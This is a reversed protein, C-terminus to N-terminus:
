QLAALGPQPAFVVCRDKGADKAEYRAVDADRLLEDATNRLGVAVGISAPCRVPEQDPTGLHYPAALGARIREAVLEPGAQLTVGEVLVVFEDGGLRGVSDSARLMATLRDAVAQLLQDGAAHGLADNVNKFGDLDLFLLGVSGHERRARRLAHEIRDLILTRNPLGTLGDHLAQYRLQETKEAVLRLARYRGTALIFLLLGVLLSIASGALLAIAAGTSALVGGAVRPGTTRATWGSGLDITVQQGGPVPTGRSFAATSRGIQYRLTVATGPHDTLGRALVVDPLVVVGLWALFNGRRAAATAPVVGGRYVPTSALLWSRGAATFPQYSAAGTDRSVLSDTSGACYDLGAPAPTATRTLSAITFCYFPRDGPPVPRFRGDPPLPSPPDAEIQRGFAALRSRPVIVAVGVAQLEPYRQLARVSRLWAIFQSNTADPHAVVFAGANMVLDEEHQIALQVTSAVEASSQRFASRAQQEEGHAVAAAAHGSAVIGATALLVAGVAWVRRERRRRRAAPVDSGPLDSGARTPAPGTSNETRM